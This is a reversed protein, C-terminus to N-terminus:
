RVLFDSESKLFLVLSFFVFINKGTTWTLFTTVIDRANKLIALEIVSVQALPMVFMLFSRVWFM